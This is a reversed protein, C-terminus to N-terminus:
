PTPSVHLMIIEHCWGGWGLGGRRPPPSRNTSKCNAWFYFQNTNLHSIASFPVGHFDPVAVGSYDRGM